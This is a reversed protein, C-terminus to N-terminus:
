CVASIINQDREEGGEANFFLQSAKRQVARPNAKGQRPAGKKVFDVLYRLLIIIKYMLLVKSVFHSVDLCKKWNLAIVPALFMNIQFITM